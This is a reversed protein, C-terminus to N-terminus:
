ESVIENWKMPSSNKGLIIETSKSIKASLYKEGSEPDIIMIPELEKGNLIKKKETSGRNKPNNKTGM